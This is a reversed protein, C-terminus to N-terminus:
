YGIRFIEDIKEAPPFGEDPEALKLEHEKRVSAVTDDNALDVEPPRFGLVNGFPRLIANYPVSVLNLAFDFTEMTNFYLGGGLFFLHGSLGLDSWHRDSNHRITFDRLTRPRDFLSLNGYQPLFDLSRYYVGSVGGERREERYFGCARGRWGMKAFEGYGMGFEALKTPQVDILMGPGYSFECSVIDTFDAGLDKWTIVFYRWWGWNDVENRFAAYEHSSQM